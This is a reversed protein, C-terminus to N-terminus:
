EITGFKDLPAIRLLARGEVQNIKIVGFSRSDESVERNDGLVFLENENVKLPLSLNKNYTEGKAYAEDLKEGNVYVYGNRIDVEDGAVGIVRKVYRVRTDTIQKLSAVEKMFIYSEELVNGKEGNNIFVIIDGRQPNEFNYSLKDLLLREDSYLTNEMSEHEVRAMAFVKTNILSAVILSGVVTIAIGRSEKILTKFKM